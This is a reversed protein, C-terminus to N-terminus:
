FTVLRQLYAQLLKHLMGLVNNIHAVVVHGLLPTGVNSPARALYCTQRGWTRVYPRKPTFTSYQIFYKLCQQSKEACGTIRHGPCQVGKRGRPARRTHRITM